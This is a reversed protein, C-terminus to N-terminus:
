ESEIRPALLYTASGNKEAFNFELKVPYDTGINMLVSEQPGVAKIMKSFYDLAFLSKVTESCELEELMDKPLKLSVSDTDGQSALEFGDPSAILSIHDAIPESARIGQILEVAGIKIKVPLNLNPVKPDTLVSADLLSMRRTVKGVRTILRNKDEDHELAIIDGAGALKLVDNLKELDIGLECDTAKFEEFAESKLTLDVMAVHATDVAKIQLSKDTIAFKVENTLNRIIELLQKLYDAKIQAQFMIM